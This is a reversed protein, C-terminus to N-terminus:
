CGRTCASHMSARTNLQVNTRNIRRAIADSSPTNTYRYFLTPVVCVSFGEWRATAVSWWDGPRTDSDVISDSRHSGSSSTGTVRSHSRLRLWHCCSLNARPEVSARNWLWWPWKWFIRNDREGYNPWIELEQSCAAKVVSKVKTWM